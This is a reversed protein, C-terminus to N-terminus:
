PTEKAAVVSVKKLFDRALKVQRNERRLLILEAREDTTLAGPRGRDAAIEAQQIRMLLTSKGMGISLATKQLSQNSAHHLSVAEAKFEWTHRPRKERM